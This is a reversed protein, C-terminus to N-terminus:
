DVVCRVVVSTADGVPVCSVMAWRCEGERKMFVSCGEIGTESETWGGQCLAERFCAMSTKEDSSVVFGVVDGTASVRISRAEDLSFLERVFWSPVAEPGTAEGALSVGSAGDVARGDMADDELWSESSTDVQEHEAEGDSLSLAKAAADAGAAWGCVAGSAAIAAIALAIGAAARAARAGQGAM